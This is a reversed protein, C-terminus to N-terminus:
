TFAQMRAAFCASWCANLRAIAIAEKGLMRRGGCPLFREVILSRTHLAYYSRFSGASGAAISAARYVARLASVPLM